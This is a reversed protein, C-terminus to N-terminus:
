SVRKRISKGHEITHLVSALNAFLNSSKEQMIVTSYGAKVYQTTIAYLMILIEAIVHLTV